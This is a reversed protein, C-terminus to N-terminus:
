LAYKHCLRSKPVPTQRTSKIYRRLQGLNCYLIVTAFWLGKPLIYYVSLYYNKSGLFYVFLCLFCCPNVTTSVNSHRSVNKGVDPEKM